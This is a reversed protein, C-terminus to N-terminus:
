GGAPSPDPAAAALGARIENRIRASEAVDGSLGIRVGVRTRASSEEEVRIALNRGDPAMGRIEGGDSRRISSDVPVQLRELAALTAAYVQEAPADFVESEDATFYIAGGLGAGVLLFWCGALPLAAALVLAISVRQRV